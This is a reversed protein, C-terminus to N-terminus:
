FCRAVFYLCSVLPQTAWGTWKTSLGWVSMELGYYGRCVRLLCFCVTMRMALHKWYWPSHSLKRFFLFFTVTDELHLLWGLIPGESPTDCTLYTGLPAQLQYHKKGKTKRGLPKRRGYGEKSWSKRELLHRTHRHEPTPDNRRQSACLDMGTSPSGYKIHWSMKPIEAVAWHEALKKREWRGGGCGAVVVVTEPDLVMALGLEQLCKGRFLTTKWSWYKRFNWCLPKQKNTMRMSLFGYDQRSGQASSGWSTCM